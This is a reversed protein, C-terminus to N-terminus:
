TEPPGECLPRTQEAIVLRQWNAIQWVGSADLYQEDHDGHDFNPTFTTATSGAGVRLLTGEAM